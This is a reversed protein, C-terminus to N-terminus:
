LETKIVVYAAYVIEFDAHFQRPYYGVDGIEPGEHVYTEVLVSEYVYGFHSRAAGVRGLGHLQVLM